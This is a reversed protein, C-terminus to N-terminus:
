VCPDGGQQAQKRVTEFREIGRERLDVVDDPEVRVRRGGNRKENLSWEVSRKDALALIERGTLTESEVIHKDRDIRIRFRRAVPVQRGERGYEEIDVVDVQRSVPRTM